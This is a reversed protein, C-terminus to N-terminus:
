RVAGCRQAPRAHCQHLRLSSAESAAGTASLSLGCMWTLLPEVVVIPLGEKPMRRSASGYIYSIGVDGAAWAQELQTSDAGSSAPTGSCRQSFKLHAAEMEAETPDLPDAWGGIIGAIM